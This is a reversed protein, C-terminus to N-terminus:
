EKPGKATAVAFKKRNQLKVEQKKNEEYVKPERYSSRKSNLFTQKYSEQRPTNKSTRHTPKGSSVFEVKVFTSDMDGDPLVPETENRPEEQQAHLLHDRLLANHALKVAAEM